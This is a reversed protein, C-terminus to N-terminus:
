ESKAVTKPEPAVYAHPGGHRCYLIYLYILVFFAVLMWACQWYFICVWKKHMYEVYAAGAIPAGIRILSRMMSNASAFQGYKARPLMQVMLPQATADWLACIPVNIFAIIMSSGFDHVWINAFTAPIILVTAVLLVRMPTFRDILWGIPLALAMALPGVSAAVIGIQAMSLGVTETTFLIRFGGCANSIAWVSSFAFFALYLPESFCERFYVRVIAFRNVRQEDPLPPPYEGEKVFVCLLGYGILYLLAVGWYIYVAYDPTCFRLVLGNWLMTAGTVIMGSVANYRGMVNKPVVDAILYWAVSNVFDDFFMFVLVMAGIIILSATLPELHYTALWGAHTTMYQNIHRIYGLSGLALVLFPATWIIFPKRRGWRSRYRDSKFSIIPVLIFALAAPISGTLIGMSMASAHIDNLQLTMLTGFVNQMFGFCINGWILWGCVIVLGATTYQLTGVQYKYQPGTPAAPTSDPINNQM